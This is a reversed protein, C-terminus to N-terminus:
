GPICAKKGKERYGHTKLFLIDHKKRMNLRDGPDVTAAAAAAVAAAVKWEPVHKFLKV